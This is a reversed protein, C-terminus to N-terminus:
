DLRVVMKGTNEGTFLGLFASVAQGIGNVVTEHNKVRGDRLYGNMEAEFEPRRDQWDGVLIGSITLRKSILQLLNNPGAQPGEDNYRSIGGCAIIRGHVRLANIAAEITEGGM